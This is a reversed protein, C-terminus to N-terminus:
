QHRAYVSRNRIQLFSVFFLISFLLLICSIQLVGQFGAVYLYEGTFIILLLIALAQYVYEDYSYHTRLVRGLLTVLGATIGATIIYQILSTPASVYTLVPAVPALVAIFLSPYNEFKRHVFLNFVTVVALVPLQWIDAYFIHLGIASAAGLYV